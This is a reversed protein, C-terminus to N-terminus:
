LLAKKIQSLIFNYDKIKRQQIFFRKFNKAGKKALINQMYNLCDGRGIGSGYTAFLIVEKGELGFCEDLYANMALAPERSWVPTGLCILDYQSLDFNVKQIKARRHMLCRVLQVFLSNSEHLDKLEIIEVEKRENLYESLIEAVKKTHGRFSYYVIISKM